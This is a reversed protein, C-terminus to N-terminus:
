NQLVGSKIREIYFKYVQLVGAKRLKPYLWTKPGLILGPIPWPGPRLGVENFMMWNPKSLCVFHYWEQSLYSSTNKFFVQFITKM